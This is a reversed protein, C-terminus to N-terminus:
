QKLKLLKTRDIYGLVVGNKAIQAFAGEEKVVAVQEGPEIQRKVPTGRSATEFLDAAAIAVHTPKQPIEEGSTELL